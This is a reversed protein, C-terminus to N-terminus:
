ERPLESAKLIIVAKLPRGYKKRVTLARGDGLAQAIANYQVSTPSPAFRPVQTIAAVTAMGELVRGFVVNVGDLRPM